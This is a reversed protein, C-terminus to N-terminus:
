IRVWLAETAFLREIALKVVFGGMEKFFFFTQKADTHCFHFSHKERRKLSTLSMYLSGLILIWRSQFIIVIRMPM